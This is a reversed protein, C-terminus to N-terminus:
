EFYSKLFRIRCAGFYGCLRENGDIADLVDCPAPSEKLYHALFMLLVQQEVADGYEHDVIQDVVNQQRSHTRGLRLHSDNFIGLHWPFAVALNHSTACLLHSVLSFLESRNAWVGPCDRATVVMLRALVAYIAFIRADGKGCVTSLTNEVQASVRSNLVAVDDEWTGKNVFLLREQELRALM